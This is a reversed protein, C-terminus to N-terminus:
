VNTTQQEETRRIMKRVKDNKWALLAFVNVGEFRYVVYKEQEAIPTCGTRVSITM